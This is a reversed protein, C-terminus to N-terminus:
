KFEPFDLNWPQFQSSKPPCARTRLAKVVTGASQPRHTEAVGTEDDEGSM